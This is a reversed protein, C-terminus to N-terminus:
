PRAAGASGLNWAALTRVRPMELSLLEIRDLRGRMGDAPVSFERALSECTALDRAAAITVHPVFPVGARLQSRLSRAQLRERLAAIEARGEEPVLFVHSAEGGRGAVAVARRFVFAIPAVDAAVAALEAELEPTPAGETPFVLTFHAGIRAAQPDHRARFAEIFVRAAEDLVPVAVVAFSGGDGAGGRAGSLGEQGDV